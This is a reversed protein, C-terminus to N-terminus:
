IIRTVPGIGLLRQTIRVAEAHDNAEVTVTSWTTRGTRVTVTWVEGTVTPRHQAREARDNM